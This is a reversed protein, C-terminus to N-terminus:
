LIEQGPHKGDGIAMSDEKYSWPFPFTEDSFPHRQKTDLMLRARPCNWLVHVLLRITCFKEVVTFHHTFRRRPRTVTAGLKLLPKLDHRSLKQQVLLMGLLDVYSFLNISHLEGEQVLVNLFIALSLDDSLLTM